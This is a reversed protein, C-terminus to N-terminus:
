KFEPTGGLKKSVFLTGSFFTSFWTSYLGIRIKQGVGAAYPLNFLAFCSRAAEGWGLGVKILYSYYSSQYLYNCFSLYVKLIQSFKLRTM